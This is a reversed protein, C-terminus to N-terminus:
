AASDLPRIGWSTEPKSSQCYFLMRDPSERVWRMADNGLWYPSVGALRRMEKQQPGARLSQARNCAVARLLRLIRHCIAFQDRNGPAFFMWLYGDTIHPPHGNQAPKTQGFVFRFTPSRPSNSAWAIRGADEPIDIGPEPRKWKIQWDRDFHMDVEPPQASDLGEIRLMHNGHFIPPPVPFLRFLVMPEYYYRAHPFEGAVADALMRWDTESLSVRLKRFTYNDDEQFTRTVGM